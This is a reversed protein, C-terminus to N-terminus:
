IIKEIYCQTMFMYQDFHKWDAFIRFIHDFMGVSKPTSSFKNSKKVTVHLERGMAEQPPHM